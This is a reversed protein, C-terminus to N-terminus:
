VHKMPPANDSHAPPTQPATPSQSTAQSSASPQGRVTRERLRSEVDRLEQLRRLIPAQMRNLNNRRAQFMDRMAENQQQTALLRECNVQPTQPSPAPPRLQCWPSEQNPPLLKPPPALHPVNAPPAYRPLHEHARAYTGLESFQRYREFVSGVSCSSTEPPMLLRHEYTM